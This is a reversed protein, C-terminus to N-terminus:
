VPSLAALRRELSAADPVILVDTGRELEVVLDRFANSQAAWASVDGIIALKIRYNVLKQLVEGAVGTRLQYFDDTIQVAPIAVVGARESMADGILDTFDRVSALMGDSAELALVRHGNLETTTAM